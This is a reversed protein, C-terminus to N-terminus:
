PGRRAAPQLAAKGQGKRRLRRPVDLLADHRRDASTRRCGACVPPRLWRLAYKRTDAAYMQLSDQEAMTLKRKNVAAAVNQELKGLSDMHSVSAAIRKDAWVAKLVAQHKTYGDKSFPKWASEFSAASAQTKMAILGINAKACADMAANLEKNGYQRFNYRFMIVDIWSHKAAEALLEHM